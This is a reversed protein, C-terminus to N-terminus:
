SMKSIALSKQEPILTVSPALILGLATKTDSPAISSAVAMGQKISEEQHRRMAQPM